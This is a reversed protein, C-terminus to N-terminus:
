VKGKLMYLWIAGILLGVFISGAVFLWFGLLIQEFIRNRRAKKEQAIRAEERVAAERRQRAQV